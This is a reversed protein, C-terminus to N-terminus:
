VGGPPMGGWRRGVEVGGDVGQVGRAPAPLNFLARFARLMARLEAPHTRLRRLGRLNLTEVTARTAGAAM